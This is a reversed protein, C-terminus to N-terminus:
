NAGACTMLYTRRLQSTAPADFTPDFVVLSFFYTTGPVCAPGGSAGAGSIGAMCLYVTCPDVNQARVPATALGSAALGLALLTSRTRLIM